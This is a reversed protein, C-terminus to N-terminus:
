KLSNVVTYLTKEWNKALPDFVIVKANTEKAIIKAFNSDFQKQIFIVKINKENAVRIVKHLYDPTPEKGHVEVPIQELGYDRAFYSLAPHYIMFSIEKDGLKSLIFAEADEFKKILSNYNSTLVEEKEPYKQALAEYINKAIYKSQIPSMWMHPDIGHDHGHDHGDTIPTIGRSIDIIELGPNSKKLGPLTTMEFGLAELSFYMVSHELAKLQQSSPEYAVPPMGEPVMTNVIFDDGAIAEIFGAVPIVTTSLLPKETDSANNNKENGPGMCSTLLFFFAAIIIITTSNKM